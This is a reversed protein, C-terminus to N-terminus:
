RLQRSIGYGVAAVVLAAAMAIVFPLTMDRFAAICVVLAVALLAFSGLVGLLLGGAHGINSTPTANRAMKMGWVLPFFAAIGIVAGAVIAVFM